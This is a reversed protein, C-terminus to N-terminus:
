LVIEPCTALSWCFAQRLNLISTSARKAISVEAEPLDFTCDPENSLLFDLSCQRAMEVVILGRFQEKARVQM